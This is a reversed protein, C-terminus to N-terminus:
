EGEGPAPTPHGQEIAPTPTSLPSGGAGTEAVVCGKALRERASLEGYGARLQEILGADVHMHVHEHKQKEPENYGLLKALQDLAKLKEAPTPIEPKTEGLALKSVEAIVKDRTVDHKIAATANARTRLEQIRSAIRPNKVLQGGISGAAKGSYGSERAAESASLLGTAVLVAFREQRPNLAM